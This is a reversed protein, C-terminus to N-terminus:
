CVESWSRVIDRIHICAFPGKLVDPKVLTTDLHDALRQMLHLPVNFVKTNIAKGRGYVKCIIQKGDFDMYRLLCLSRVLSNNYFSVLMHPSMQACLSCKKLHGECPPHMGHQLAYAM